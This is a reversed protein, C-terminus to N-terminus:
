KVICQYSVTYTDVVQLPKDFKITVDNIIRYGSILTGASNRIEVDPEGNLDSDVPVCDLTKESVKTLLIEAILNFHSAYDDSCISASVGGTLESLDYYSYGFTEGQSVCSSDGPMVISSHNIYGKGPIQKRFADLFVQASNFSQSNRLQDSDTIVITSFVADSRLFTNENSGAVKSRNIFNMISDMGSESSSGSTGTNITDTFLIGGNVTNKDLFYTNAPYSVSASKPKLQLLSGKSGQYNNTNDTTTIAIRYDLASLGAIFNSFAQSIKLQEQSMSGSNDVIFLIDMKKTEISTVSFNTKKDVVTGISASDVATKSGSDSAQTFSTKSCNQFGILLIASVMALVVTMKNKNM